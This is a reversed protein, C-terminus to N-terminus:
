SKGMKQQLVELDGRLWYIIKEFKQSQECHYNVKINQKVLGEKLTSCAVKNHQKVAGVTFLEEKIEAVLLLIDAEDIPLTPYCEVLDDLHIQGRTTSSIKSDIKGHTKKM